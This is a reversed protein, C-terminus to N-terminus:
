SCSPVVIFFAKLNTLIANFSLRIFNLFPFSLFLQLVPFGQPFQLLPQPPFFRSVRGFQEFYGKVDDITSPASLGGVFIKKTRTVMQSGDFFETFSPLFLSTSVPEVRYFETFYYFETLFFQYNNWLFELIIIRTRWHQAFRNLRTISNFTGYILLSIPRRTRFRPDVRGIRSSFEIEIRKLKLWTGQFQLVTIRDIHFMLWLTQIEILKKKTSFVGISNTKM